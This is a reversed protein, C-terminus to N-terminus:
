RRGVRAVDTTIEFEARRNRSWCAEESATSCVPREEGYSMVELRSADIGHDVLYRKAAVARRQGLALNYEDSGREDAHGSIKLQFDAMTSLTSQKADLQRRSEDGLEAQDYGFYIPAVLTSRGTAIAAAREARLREERALSDRRAGEARAASDRASRDDRAVVQPAPSVVPAPAKKGCAHLTTAAALFVAITVHRKLQRETTNFARLDDM